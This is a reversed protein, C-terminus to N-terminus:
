IRGPEWTLLLPIYIFSYLIDVYQVDRISGQVMNACQLFQVIKCPVYINKKQSHVNQKVKTKAFLM